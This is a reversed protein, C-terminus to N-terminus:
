VHLFFSATSVPYSALEVMERTMQGICCHTEAIGYIKRTVMHATGMHMHLRELSNRAGGVKMRSDQKVSSLQREWLEELESM